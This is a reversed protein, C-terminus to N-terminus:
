VVQTKEMASQLHKIDRRLLEIFGEMVVNCEEQKVAFTSTALKKRTREHAEDGFGMVLAKGALHNARSRLIELGDDGRGNDWRRVALDDELGDPMSYLFDCICIPLFLSPSTFRFIWAGSWGLAEHVIQYLSRRISLESLRETHTHSSYTNAYAHWIAPITNIITSVGESTTTNNCAHMLAYLFASGIFLGLDAGAPGWNSFEMDILKILGEEKLDYGADGVSHQYATRFPQKDEDTGDVYRGTMVLVNLIHADLHVLTATEDPPNLFNDWHRQLARTLEPNSCLYHSHKRRTEPDPVFSTREKCVDFKTRGLYM